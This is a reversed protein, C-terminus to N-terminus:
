HWTKVGIVLQDDMFTGDLTVMNNKAVGNGCAKSEQDLEGTYKLEMTGMMGDEDIYKEGIKLQGESRLKNLKPLLESYIYWIYNEQTIVGDYLKKLEDARGM